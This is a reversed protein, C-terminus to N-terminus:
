GFPPRPPMRQKRAREAVGPEGHDLGAEKAAEILGGLSEHADRVNRMVQRVATYRVQEIWRAVVEGTIPEDSRHGYAGFWGHEGAFKALIDLPSEVRRRADELDMKAKKVHQLAKEYTEEVPRACEEVKADLMERTIDEGEFRYHATRERAITDALARIASLAVTEPLPGIDRHTAVKVKRLKDGAKTATMLGWSEPVEEEKVLGHPVVFYTQHFNEEVWQRKAPRDIERKFDQRTRKVEFALRHWGKSPWCNFAVVDIRQDVGRGSYGVGARLEYVVAWEPAPFRAAVLGELDIGM